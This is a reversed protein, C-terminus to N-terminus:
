ITHTKKLQRIVCGKPRLIILFLDLPTIIKSLKKVCRRCGLAFLLITCSGHSKEVAEECMEQKKFHDPVHELLFPERRVEENIVEQAGPVYKLTYLLGARTGEITYWIVMKFLDIIKNIGNPTPCPRPSPRLTCLPLGKKIVKM